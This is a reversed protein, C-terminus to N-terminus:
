WWWRPPMGGPRRIGDGCEVAPPSDAAAAAAAAAAFTETQSVVVDKLVFLAISVAVAASPLLLRRGAGHQGGMSGM